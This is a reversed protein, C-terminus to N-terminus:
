CLQVPDPWGGGAGVRGIKGNSATIETRSSAEHRNKAFFCITIAGAGDSKVAGVDAPLRLNQAQTRPDASGRLRRQEMALAEVHAGMHRGIRVARDALIPRLTPTYATPM